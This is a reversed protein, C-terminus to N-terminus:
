LNQLRLRGSVGFAVLGTTPNFFFYIYIHKHDYDRYVSLIINFGSIDSVKKNTDHWSRCLPWLIQPLMIRDTCQCWLCFNLEFLICKDLFKSSVTCKLQSELGFVTAYRPTVEHAEREFGSSRSFTFPNSKVASKDTLRTQFGSSCDNFYPSKAYNQPLGSNISFV